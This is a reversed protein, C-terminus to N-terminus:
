EFVKKGKRVFPPKVIKARLWQDRIQVECHSADTNPIRALAIGVGLTPSFSGSTTIGESGDPLRIKQHARLVGKDELILGVLKRKIGHSTQLELAGRGIFLRDGPECAVTWALNSEFPTTHKDMDQGYLNLGAELRLTDRAGLGVPHVGAAALHQWLNVAKQAPLMIEFGDEGTYGTRAILYHEYEACEFPALTSATDMLQPPLLPLTKARAAPGQIAIIALDPREHLGVAFDAAQKNLWALDTDRTGANIVLRYFHADLFYVILDDIIGGNDNLMCTYLAKGRHALKDVDNALLYRLFERAGTGLVDVIGMHSVDFMGASQRVFHHEQLQSGYHLPMDWGAFDVLRAGAAQHQGHLPTQKTM